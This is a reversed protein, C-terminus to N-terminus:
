AIPPRFPINAADGPLQFPGAQPLRPGSPALRSVTMITEPLAVSASACQHLLSHQGMAHDPDSPDGPHGHSASDAPHAHGHGDDSQAAAVAHEVGHLEGMAGLTPQIAMGLVLLVLLASRLLRRHRRFRHM